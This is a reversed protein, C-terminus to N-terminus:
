PSEFYVKAPSLRPILMPVQKQYAKYQDGFERILSKEEYWLGIVIYLIMLLAFLMHGMTMHPTALLMIVIGLQMPHRVFKYLSPTVLKPKPLDQQKNASWIHRLGFLEFHDILFTSLFVIGVGLGFLGYAVWVMTDTAMWITQEMPQWYAVALGIFFASQLVYTSREADAPIIKTWWNKFRQRAMLSHFFGFLFILGVNILLPMMMGETEIMPGRPIPMGLLFAAMYLFSAQFLLYAVLGYLLLGPRKM